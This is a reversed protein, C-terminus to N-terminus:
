VEMYGDGDSWDTSRHPGQELGAAVRFNALQESNAPALLGQYVAPVTASRCRDLKGARFGETWRADGLGISRLRAPPSRVTDVVGAASPSDAGGAQLRRRESRCVMPAEGM